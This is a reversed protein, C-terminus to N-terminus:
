VYKTKQLWKCIGPMVDYMKAQDKGSVSQQAGSGLFCGECLKRYSPSLVKSQVFLIYFKQSSTM